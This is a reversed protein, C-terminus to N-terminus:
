TGVQKRTGNFEIVQLIVNMFNGENVARYIGNESLTSPRSIM